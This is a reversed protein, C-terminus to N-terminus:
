VTKQLSLGCFPQIGTQLCTMPTGGYPLGNPAGSAGEGLAASGRRFLADAPTRVVAALAQDPTVRGAGARENAQGSAIEHLWSTHGPM